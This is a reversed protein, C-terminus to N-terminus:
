LLISFLKKILEKADMMTLILPLIPALAAAAIVIVSAATFPTLRM